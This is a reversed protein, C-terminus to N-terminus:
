LRLALNADMTSLAYSTLTRFLKQEERKAM